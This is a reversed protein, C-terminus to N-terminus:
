VEVEQGCLYYYFGRQALLEDPDGQEVLRGKDLVLIVDADRVSSPRHGIIFTTQGDLLGALNQLVTRESESDVSSTAEDLILVAPQRYVARAIAIRQRQSGSLALGTDGIRTDYGLPLRDVFEHAAAVRSAWLVRDMDPEDEGLAINRAVTDDFLHNEHLVLGMRARLQSHDLTGLDVGDYVITGETPEFLGALCKALTTKGSGSRGVVAVTKGPSVDFTIDELILPSEPGGYRFGMKRCAIRGELSRVPVLGSHDPGQEPEQEVVDELQDLFVSALRVDHWLSLLTVLPASALVVLLIFAVLAGTTLTGRMVQHAGAWLFLGLSLVTVSQAAGEYCM